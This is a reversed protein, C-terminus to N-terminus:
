TTLMKEKEKNKEGRKTLALEALQRDEPSLLDLRERLLNDIEQPSMREILDKTLTTTEM